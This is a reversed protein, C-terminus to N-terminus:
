LRLILGANIVSAVLWPLAVGLPVVPRYRRPMSVWAVLAIAVVTGKLLLMAEIVGLMSFFSRAIPNAEHLGLGLGYYTLGVDLAFSVAVLGWLWTEVSEVLPHIATSSDTTDAAPLSLRSM